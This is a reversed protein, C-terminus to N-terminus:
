LYPEARRHRTNPDFVPKSLWDSWAVTRSVGLRTKGAGASRMDLMEGKRRNLSDVVTSAFEEDVDITVEEMPELRNGSEDKQYLVRPRSVTLEFGERRMTEILVGLKCNAAAALRM